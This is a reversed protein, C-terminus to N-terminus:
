IYDPTYNILYKFVIVLFDQITRDTLDYDVRDAM